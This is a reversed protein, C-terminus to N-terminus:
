YEYKARLERTFDELLIGEGNNIESEAQKLNEIIERTLFTKNCLKRNNRTFIEGLFKNYNKMIKKSIKKM